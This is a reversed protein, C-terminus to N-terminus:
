RGKKFHKDDYWNAVTNFIRTLLDMHVMLYKKNFAYKYALHRIDATIGSQDTRHLVSIIHSLASSSADSVKEELLFIYPNDAQDTKRKVLALFDHVHFAPPHSEKELQHRLFAIAENLERKRMSLLWVFQIPGPLEDAYFNLSM